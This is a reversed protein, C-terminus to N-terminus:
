RYLKSRSVESIGNSECYTTITETTWDDARPDITVAEIFDQPLATFIIEEMLIKKVKLIESGPLRYPAQEIKVLGRIEEEHIFPRRKKLFHALDAYDSLVEEITRSKTQPRVTPNNYDVRGVCYKIELFEEIELPVEVRALAIELKRVSSRIQLGYKDQSYIRWMADSEQLLSWSTGFPFTNKRIEQELKRDNMIMGTQIFAQEAVLSMYPDGESPDDWSSVKKLYLKNRQLIDVFQIFTLYRYIALDGDIQYREDLSCQTRM